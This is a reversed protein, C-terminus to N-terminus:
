RPVMHTSSAFSDGQLAEVSEQWVRHVLICRLIELKSRVVLHCSRRVYMAKNTEMEAVRLEKETREQKEIDKIDDAADRVRGTLGIHM